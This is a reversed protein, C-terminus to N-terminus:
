KNWGGQSELYAKRIKALEAKQEPSSKYIGQFGKNRPPNAVQAKADEVSMGQMGQQQLQRMTPRDTRNHVFATPQPKPAVKAKPKPAVKAKPKPKPAVKAKPKPKPAVKAKAKPKPKGKPTVKIGKADGTVNYSGKNNRM